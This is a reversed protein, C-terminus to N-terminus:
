LSIIKFIVIIIIILILLSIPFVVWSIFAAQNKDTLDSYLKKTERDIDSSMARGISTSKAKQYSNSHALNTGESNLDNELKEIQRKNNVNVYQYYYSTNGREIVGQLYPVDEEPLYQRFLNFNEKLFIPKLINIDIKSYISIQIFALNYIDEKIIEQKYEKPIKIVTNYQIPNLNQENLIEIEKPNFSKICYDNTHIFHMTKSMNYFLKQVKEKSPNNDLWDSLKISM